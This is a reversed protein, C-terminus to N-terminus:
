TVIRERGILRRKRTLISNRPKPEMSHRTYICDVVNAFVTLMTLPHLMHCELLRAATLTASSTYRCTTLSLYGIYCLLVRSVFEPLENFKVGVDGDRLVFYHTSRATGKICSHSQLYFDRYYPSTVGTDVLTGPLCNNNGRTDKDEKKMPYFRTHHRKVGVVALINIKMGPKKFIKAKKLQDDWAIAIKAVEKSLVKEYQGESVGDRFYIIKTPMKLINKDKNYTMWDRIREAVM